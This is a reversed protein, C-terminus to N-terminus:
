AAGEIPAHRAPDIVFGFRGRARYEDQPVMFTSTQPTGWPSSTPRKMHHRRPQPTHGDPHMTRTYRAIQLGARHTEVDRAPPHPNTAATWETDAHSVVSTTGTM